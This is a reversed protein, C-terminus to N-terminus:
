PVPLKDAAGKRPPVTIAHCCCVRVNCRPMGLVEERGQLFAATYGWGQLHPCPPESFCPVKDAHHPRVAPCSLHLGLRPGEERYFVNPGSSNM